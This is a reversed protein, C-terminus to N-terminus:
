EEVGLGKDCMEECEELTVGIKKNYGTKRYDDDLCGTDEHIIFKASFFM